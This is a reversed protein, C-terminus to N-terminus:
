ANYVKVFAEKFKAMEQRSGVSVRVWEPWIPWARGIYVKQAAM